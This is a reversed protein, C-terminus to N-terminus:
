GCGAGCKCHVTLEPTEEPDFSYKGDKYFNQEVYFEVDVLDFYCLDLPKGFFTFYFQCTHLYRMTASEVDIGPTHKIQRGCIRICDEEYLGSEIHAHWLDDVPESPSLFKSNWDHCFVKLGLFRLYEELNGHNTGKWQVEARIKEMLENLSRSGEEDFDLPREKILPYFDISDAYLEDAYLGQDNMRLWSHLQVQEMGGPILRFTNQKHKPTMDGVYKCLVEMEHPLAFEFIIETLTAPFRPFLLNLFRYLIRRDYWENQVDANEGFASKAIERVEKTIIKSSAFPCYGHNMVVTGSDSDRSHGYSFAEDAGNFYTKLVQMNVQRWFSLIGSTKVPVDNYSTKGDVVIDRCILFFDHPVNTGVIPM